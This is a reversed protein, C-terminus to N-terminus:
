NLLSDQSALSLFFVMTLHTLKGPHDFVWKECGYPDNRDDPPIDCAEEGLVFKVDVRCDYLIM